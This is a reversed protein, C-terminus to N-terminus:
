SRVLFHNSDSILFFDLRSRNNRGTRPIYSFDRLDPHLARFPDTLTHNISLNNLNASRIASPPRQMGFIDINDPSDLTSVTSNWDGGILVPIAGCRGLLDDLNNFFNAENTNPGYVSILWIICSGIEIKIGLINEDVDTYRDIIRYSINKNLL